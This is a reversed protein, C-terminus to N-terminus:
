SKYLFAVRRIIYHSMKCGYLLNWVEGNELIVQQLSFIILLHRLLANTLLGPIAIRLDYQSRALIIKSKTIHPLM